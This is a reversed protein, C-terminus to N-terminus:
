GGFLWIAILPLGLFAMVASCILEDRLERTM